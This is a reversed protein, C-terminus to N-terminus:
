AAEPNQPQRSFLESVARGSVGPFGHRELELAVTFAALNPRERHLDLAIAQWSRDPPTRDESPPPSVQLTSETGGTRLTGETRRTGERGAGTIQNKQPTPVSPPSPVSRVSRVPLVPPVLPVASTGAGAEGTPWFWVIQGQDTSEKSSQVLGRNGLQQLMRRAIRPACPGKLELAEILDGSATRQRGNDWRERVLDLAGAQRDHLEEEAEARRQEEFVEAADGHCNWGEDQQELLLQLPEGGRGETQLVVRRDSSGRAKTLWSLAVVQSVAAPLASTGRCAAVAGEGTRGHGSHHIVVLTAGHPSLAEQLDGLPGAYDSSAEKLGLPQCCKAYSDVIVLVGPYKSAEEALRSIGDSDLHIPSEQSFLGRIPGNLPLQWRGPSVQEALGFREMLAFWRRRPMDTGALIVPPCPGYFRRGLHEPEKRSWRAIADLVLSTKGVKPLAAILNSDGAMLIGEWAWADAEANGVMGPAFMEVAGARRRRASWLRRQLDPDKLNLGLADAKHRLHILRDGVPVTSSDNLLEDTFADLLALREATDLTDKQQPRSAATHFAACREAASGPADDISGKEPISPWLEAARILRFSLGVAAAAAQLKKAKREGQDDHDALYAIGLIGADKLRSYRAEIADPKLDHGPQSTGVLGGARLWEACKEGEAEAIWWGRGHEIVEEERWMPWADPGAGPVLRDGRQHHPRPEKKGSRIEVRVVQGPGYDLEQGDPWHDPPEPAPAPLRALLGGANNSGATRPAGRGAQPKDPTFTAARGDDTDGTYAWAQGNALEIVKGRRLDAPPSHSTGYACLILDPSIRCDGDKSRTCIPCPNRPGSPQLASM